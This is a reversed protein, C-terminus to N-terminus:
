CGLVDAVRRLQTEDFGERVLLRHGSALLVEISSGATPEAELKVFAPEGELGRERKIRPLWRILSSYPVGSAEALEAYTLGESEKRELLARYEAVSRRVNPMRQM